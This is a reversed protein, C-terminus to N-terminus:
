SGSPQPAGTGVRKWFLIMGMLCLLGAGLTTGIPPEPVNTVTVTGGTSFVGFSGAGLPAPYAANCTADSSACSLNVDFMGPPVFISHTTSLTYTGTVLPSPNNGLYVVLADGNPNQISSVVWVAASFVQVSPFPPTGFLSFSTGLVGSTSFSFSGNVYTETTNDWLYSESLTQTCLATGSPGCVNNGNFTLNSITDQIINDARTAAPAVISVLGLAAALACRATKM